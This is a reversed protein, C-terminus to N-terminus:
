ADRKIPRSLSRPRPAVVAAAPLALQAVPTIMLSQAAGNSAAPLTITVKTGHGVESDIGIRGRHASIVRAAVALGMGSGSAKTTFGPTYIRALDSHRIGPGTDVVAIQLSPTRGEGAGVYVDVRSGPTAASAEVANGVINLLADRLLTRDGRLEPLASAIVPSVTVPAGTRAIIDVVETVLAAAPVIEWHLDTSQLSRLYEAWENYATVVERELTSLHRALPQEQGANPGAASPGAANSGAASPEANPGALRRASRTRAAFIGLLNKVRHGQAHLAALLDERATAVAASLAQLLAAEGSGAADIMAQAMAQVLPKSRSESALAGTGVLMQSALRWMAEDGPDVILARAMARAAAEIDADVPATNASAREGRRGVRGWALRARHKAAAAHHPMLELAKDCWAHTHDRGISDDAACDEMTALWMYVRSLDRNRALSGEMSELDTRLVQLDAMAAHRAHRDRHRRQMRRETLRMRIARASPRRELERGLHHEIEKDSAVSDMSAVDSRGAGAADAPRTGAVPSRASGARQEAEGFLALLADVPAEPVRERLATLEEYAQRGRGTKLMTAFLAEVLVSQEDIFDGVADIRAQPHSDLVQSGVAILAEVFSAWAAMAHAGAGAEDATRLSVQACGWHAQALISPRVQAGAGADRPNMPGSGLVELVGAFSRRAASLENALLQAQGLVIRAQAGARHRMAARAHECAQRGDGAALALEALRLTATAVAGAAGTDAAGADADAAGTDSIVRSFVGRAAHLLGLAVYREGLEVLIAGREM